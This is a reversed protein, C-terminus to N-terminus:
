FNKSKKKTKKSLFPIVLSVSLLLYLLLDILCNGEYTQRPMIKVGTVSLSPNLATGFTIVYMKVGFLMQRWTAVEKGLDSAPDPM